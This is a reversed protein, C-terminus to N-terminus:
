IDNQDLQNRVLEYYIGRKSLLSKHTGIESIEGKDMVIIQDANLITSLRHAVLVVTKGKFVENLNSMIIRENTADLVSTAEDFLLISPNKYVARAILIRLRQGASIGNGTNGIKTDYGLPLENIFEEINAIKVSQSLRGYDVNESSMTINGSITDSFIYGDQMVTGCRGRWLSPSISKLDIGNYTIEGGVPDYFKLLLKLLTTKGCGSMGVIATTKGDPIVISCNKIVVQSELGSYQFSVNELKIDGSPQSNVISSDGKKTKSYDEENDQKHIENLRELSIKADQASRVFAILREIPSNLQGIIYSISLMMGLSLNGYVVETATFYSILINKSQLFLLNGIQQYQELKLSQYKLKFMRVAVMEWQWRKETESNSLKIDQMAIVLELISNQSITQEQFVKYDLNKRYRLFATIWLVSLASGILFVLAIKPSYIWLVINFVILNIVSFLTTLLTNTLFYEIRSHDSIRQLIDSVHKSEFFLVPLKMLKILFDSIISINIRSNIHLLIWGRIMDIAAGGFTIALQSLLILQIFGVDQLNVGSDVLSQTLFPLSLSLVSGLFMGGILQFIYKRFPILYKLMFSIGKKKNDHDIQQDFETTTELLLAYGKVDQKKWCKLFTELEVKVTGFAPDIVVIKEKKKGSYNQPPIVVFHHNNWHLICPLLAEENLQDFTIYVISSKFGIKEAARALDRIAVGEKRKHSLDSLFETSFRKGYYKAIIRLCTPGCDSNDLQRYITFRRM